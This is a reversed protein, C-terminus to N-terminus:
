RVFWPQAFPNTTFFRVLQAAAKARGSTSLHVGDAVFDERFWSMGTSSPMAGDTWLYPGWLLVPSRVPGKSPDDNLLPNGMIQSQILQRVSFGSEYRYPEPEAAHLAYGAYIPSTVFALRANPFLAEAHYIVRTMSDAYQEIRSNFDGYHWEHIRALDIWLVQVQRPTVGASRLQGLAVSWPRSSGDWSQLVMGDQAGNVLTVDTARGPLRRVKGQFTQFIETSTSQGIALLVIRGGGGPQGSANLPRLQAVAGAAASAQTAPPSNAGGGYLGGSQGQYTGRLDILPTFGTSHAAVEARHDTVVAGDSLLVRSEAQEVAPLFRGSSAKHV